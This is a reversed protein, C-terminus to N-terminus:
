QEEQNQRLNQVGVSIIYELVQENPTQYALEMMKCIAAVRKALDGTLKINFDFDETSEFTKSMQEAVIGAGKRLSLEQENDM